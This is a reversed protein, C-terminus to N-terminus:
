QIIIIIKIIIIIIIISFDKRCEFSSCTIFICSYWLAIHTYLQVCEESSTEEPCLLYATLKVGRQKLEPFISWTHMLYSAPYDGSSSPCVPSSFYIKGRGPISGQDDLEYGTM